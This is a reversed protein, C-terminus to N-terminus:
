ETRAMQGCAIVWPDQSNDITFKMCIHQNDMHGERYFGRLLRDDYLELYQFSDVYRSSKVEEKPISIRRIDVTMPLVKLGSSKLVMLDICTVDLEKSTSFHGLLRIYTAGTIPDVSPKMAIGVNLLCCNAFGERALCLVPSGGQVSSGDPPITFIHIFSVIRDGWHCLCRLAILHTDTYAM